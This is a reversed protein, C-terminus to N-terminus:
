LEGRNDVAARLEGDLQERFRRWTEEDADLAEPGYDEAIQIWTRRDNIEGLRQQIDKYRDAEEAYKTDAAFEASAITYRCRKAAIRVQHLAELAEESYIGERDATVQYTHRRKRYDDKLERLSRNVDAREALEPLLEKVFTKYKRDLKGGALKPLKRSLKKRQSRREEKELKALRKFLGAEEERGAQEEERRKTKFEGILVDADRVRGLRKQAQKIPRYLKTEDDPDIIPLLTLLKRAGVRVQHVDEDGYDKWAARSRKRFETYLEDLAEKWQDILGTLDQQQASTDEEQRNGM